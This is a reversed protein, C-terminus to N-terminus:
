REPRALRELAAAIAAGIEARSAADRDRPLLGARALRDVIAGTVPVAVFCVGRRLRERYRRMREADPSRDRPMRGRTMVSEKGSEDTVSLGINVSAM